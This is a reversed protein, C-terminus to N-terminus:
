KVDEDFSIVGTISVKVGPFLKQIRPEGQSIISVTGSKCSEMKFPESWADLFDEKHCIGKSVVEEITSTPVKTHEAADSLKRGLRILKNVTLGDKSVVSVLSACLSGILAFTVCWALMVFFYQLRSKM